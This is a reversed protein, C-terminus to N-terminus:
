EIDDGGRGSRPLPPNSYNARIAIKIHSLTAASRARDHAVVTLAGVRENYLSFNKSFSSCILFELDPRDIARLWAADERLGVGFGQYAFDVIPLLQRFALVYAIEQWLEPSPDIGTPNHCSGHLLVLDGRDASSLAGLLAPRNIARGSADLYPYRAVKYGALGFLQSHIPWTPAPLWITRGGGTQALFDAAVRLAGTGGPTQVSLARGSEVTRSRTGFILERVATRYGDAGDIPRCTKSAARAVLRREADLVTALVPTLGNEDVYVGIALNVKRPRRDHAFADSIGFIADPPADTLARIPLAM